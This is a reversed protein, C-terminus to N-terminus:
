KEKKQEWGNREDCFPVFVLSNQGLNLVDRDHLPMNVLVPKDNLYCLAHSTEGAQIFFQRQIPEYIIVAHKERSIGNDGKLCVDNKADRGIFNKGAYLCFSKGYNSGSICVLWGVVPKVGEEQGCYWGVTVGESEQATQSNGSPFRNPIPTDTTIDLGAGPRDGNGTVDVGAFGGGRPSREPVPRAGTIMDGGWGAGGDPVPYSETMDGWGEANGGACHPCTSYKEADYSHGTACRTLKM